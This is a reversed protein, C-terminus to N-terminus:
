LKILNGRYFDLIKSRLIFEYKAQLLNSKTVILRNKSISFEIGTALGSEYRETVFNHSEQISEVALASADYRALANKADSYATQIEQKLTNKALDLALKSDLALIKAQNIQNKTQLQNFIPINMNVSVRGYSNDQLQSSYSYNNTPSLPNVGLESYRSYYMGSLGINPSLNSKAIALGSEYAKVRYEAGKIRPLSNLAVNYVQEPSRLSSDSIELFRPHSIAFGKLETINMLHALTLESHSVQNEAQTLALADQAAQAQIELLDAKAMRGYEVFVRTSEVQELTIKYQEIAVQHLEEAFLVQLFAGTVQIAISNRLTATEATAAQMAYKQQKITNLIGMGNFLPLQGQIGMNGDQYETNIYSYDEFNVTKGSSLNHSAWASLSPLRGARATQLNSKSSQIQLNQRKISINQEQAHQICEDLTWKQQALIGKGAFISVLILVFAVLRSIPRM